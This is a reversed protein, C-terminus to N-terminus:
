SAAAATEAVVARYKGRKEVAAGNAALQRLAAAITRSGVDKITIQGAAFWGDGSATLAQLSDRVDVIQQSTAVTASRPKREKSPAKPAVEAFDPDALKSVSELLTKAKSVLAASEKVLSDLKKGFKAREDARISEEFAKLHENM